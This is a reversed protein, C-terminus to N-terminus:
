TAAPGPAEALGALDPASHSELRARPGAQSFIVSYLIFNFLILWLGLNCRYKLFCQAASVQFGLVLTLGDQKILVEAVEQERGPGGWDQENMRESARAGQPRLTAGQDSADKARQLFLAPSYAPGLLAQFPWSGSPVAVPVGEKKHGRFPLCCFWRLEGPPM